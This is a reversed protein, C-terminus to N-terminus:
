LKWDPFDKRIHKARYRLLRNLTYRLTSIVDGFFFVVSKLGSGHKETSKRLASLVANIRLSILTYSKSASTKTKQKKEVMEKRKMRSM